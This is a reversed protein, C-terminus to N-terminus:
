EEEQSPEPQWQDTGDLHKFGHGSVYILDKAEVWVGRYNGGDHKFMLPLVPSNIDCAMVIGEMGEHPFDVADTVDVLDSADLVRQGDVDKFKIRGILAETPRATKVVDHTIQIVKGTEPDTIKGRRPVSYNKEM